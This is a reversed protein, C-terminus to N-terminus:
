SSPIKRKVRQGRPRYTAGVVSILIVAGGIWQVTNLREGLYVMAVAVTVVPILNIFLSSESVGLSDMAIVYFYFGLFSAFVGLFLLNAIAEPTLRDFHNTEFFAFPFMLILGFLFQYYTISLNNYRKFLARSAMSYVLWAAIAGAMMVYGKVTGGDALRDLRVDAVLVVGVLSLVFFFFQRREIHRKFLLAETILTFVPITAILLSTLSANLLQVATNEFYFYLGIGVGGAFLFLPIDARKLPDRVGKYALLLRIMATALIFRLVAITMPGLYDLLVKTNVFSVGWAIVPVTIALWGKTKNTM